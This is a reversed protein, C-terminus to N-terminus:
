SLGFIIEKFKNGREAYNNFQDYSACGPSLLVINGPKAISCAKEICDKFKEYFSNYHQEALIETPAM